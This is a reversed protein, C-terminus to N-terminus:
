STSSQPKMCLALVLNKSQNKKPVFEDILCIKCAGEYRRWGGEYRNKLIKEENTLLPANKKM